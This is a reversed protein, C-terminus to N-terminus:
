TILSLSPSFVLINESFTELNRQHTFEDKILASSNQACTPGPPQCDTLKAEHGGGSEDM